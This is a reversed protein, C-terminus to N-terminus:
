YNSRTQEPLTQKIKFPHIIRKEGYDKNGLWAPLNLTKEYSRKATLKKRKFIKVITKFAIKIPNKKNERCHQSKYKFPLRINKM